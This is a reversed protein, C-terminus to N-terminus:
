TKIDCDDKINLLRKEEQNARSARDKELLRWLPPYWFFRRTNWQPKNRWEGFGHCVAARETHQKGADFGKWYWTEKGTAYCKWCALVVLFVLVVPTALRIAKRFM